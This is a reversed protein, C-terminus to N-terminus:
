KKSVIPAKDTFSYTTKINEWAAKKRQRFATQLRMKNSFKIATIDPTDKTQWSDPIDAPLCQYFHACYDNLHTMVWRWYALEPDRNDYRLISWNPYDESYNKYLHFGDNMEYCSNESFVSSSCFEEVLKSSKEWKKGSLGRPYHCFSEHKHKITKQEKCPAGCFPCKVQCGWFNQLITEYPRKLENELLDGCQATENIGPLNMKNCIEEFLKEECFTVVKKTFEQLSSIDYVLVDSLDSNLPYKESGVLGRFQQCWDEMTNSQSCRKVARSSLKGRLFEIYDKVNEESKGQIWSKGTTEKVLMKAIKNRLWLIVFETNNGIYEMYKLPEMERFLYELVIDHLNSKSRIVENTFVKILDLSLKDLFLHRMCTILEHRLCEFARDDQFPKEYFSVFDNYLEEKQKNLEEQCSNEKEYARQNKLVIESTKGCVHLLVKAILTNPPKRKSCRDSLTLEELCKQLSIHVLNADFARKYCKAKLKELNESVVSMVFTEIDTQNAEKWKQTMFANGKHKIIKVSSKSPTYDQCKFGHLHHHIGGEKKLLFLIDNRVANHHCVKLLINECETNIDSTNVRKSNFSDEVTEMWTKWCNEFVERLDSLKSNHMDKNKSLSLAKEKAKKRLDKTMKAVFLPIDSSAWKSAIKENRIKNKTDSALHEISSEITKQFDNLHSSHLKNEGSSYRKLSNYVRTKNEDIKDDLHKEIEACTDDVETSEANRIERQWRQWHGHIDLRADAIWKNCQFSFENYEIAKSTDEFNLIFNEEMLARCVDVLRNKFTSITFQSTLKLITDKLSKISESYLPNPPNMNGNWLNPIFKTDKELEIRFIDSFKGYRDSLSEAEAAHCVASDLHAIIRYMNTRNKQVATIDSVRQQVITCQSILDVEKMRILTHAAIQLFGTMEPGMCEGEVNIITLDALCMALTVMKNDLRRNSLNDAEGGHDSRLGETDLVLLYEFGLKSSFDSEIRLLRCFLGKTCRGAQVPFNTGFLSNLLTSKGSGQVGVVSVVVLKADDLLKSLEKFVGQIWALQVTYTKDDLLELPYGKLLFQAVLLPLRTFDAAIPEKETINSHAEYFQGLERIFDEIGISLRWQNETERKYLAHYDIQGGLEHQLRATDCSEREKIKGELFRKEVDVLKFQSHTLDFLKEQLSKISFEFTDKDSELLKLLQWFCKVEPSIEAEMEKLRVKYKESELRSLTHEVSENEHVELSAMKNDLEVLKQWLPYLRLTDVKFTDMPIQDPIIARVKDAIVKQNEHSLDFSFGCDVFSDMVHAMKTPNQEDCCVSAIRESVKEAIDKVQLNRVVLFRNEKKYESKLIASPNDKEEFVVFLSNKSKEKIFDIHQKHSPSRYIDRQIFAVTLNAAECAFLTQKHYLSSDGRLNLFTIPRNLCGREETHPVYWAVEVSGCSFTPKVVDNEKSLFFSHKQNGQSESLLYNLFDSKSLREEGVRLFTVTFVPHSIIPVELPDPFNSTRVKKYVGRLAWTLFIPLRGEPGQLVLPVALQCSSLKTLIDRRLFNSSTHLVAFIFDRISTNSRDTLEPSTIRYDLSTIKDWFLEVPLVFSREPDKINLMDDLTLIRGLKVRQKFSTFSEVQRRNVYSIEEEEDSSLDDNKTVHGMKCAIFNHHSDVRAAAAELRLYKFAERIRSVNFPQIILRGELHELLLLGPPAGKLIEEKKAPPIEFYTALMNCVTTTLYENSLDVKLRRFGNGIAEKCAEKITEKNM